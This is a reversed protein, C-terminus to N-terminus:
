RENTTFMFIFKIQKHLKDKNAFNKNSASHNTSGEKWQFSHKRNKHIISYNLGLIFFIKTRIKLM